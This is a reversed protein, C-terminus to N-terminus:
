ATQTLAAVCPDVVDRCALRRVRERAASGLVGHTPLGDEASVPVRAARRVARTFCERVFSSADADADAMLWRLSQWGLAAHRLEDEAISALLRALAADECAEAAAQLEIAALTEGVCAEDILGAIVARRDVRALAGEVALPGPGSAQGTYAEALGFAIQAHRIEDAMAEHTARVLGAPAGLEALQLAFRAFSAVSAHEFRAVRAWHAGLRARLPAPCCLAHIDAMWDCRAGLAALRARADVTFPRGCDDVESPGGGCQWEGQPAICGQPPECEDAVYCAQDPTTCATSHFGGCTNPPMVGLGCLEDGCSDGDTCLADICIPFEGIVGGCVCVQGEGCDADSTCGYHCMCELWGVQCSGNPEAMCDAATQCGGGGNECAPDDPGAGDVCEVAEARYIFGGECLMFGSPVDTGHQLIPQPDDCALMAPPPVPDETEGESTSESESSDGTDSSEESGSSESSESGSDTESEGQTTETGEGPGVSTSESGDGAVGTESGSQTQSGDESSGGSSATTRSVCAVELGLAALLVLRTRHLSRDM